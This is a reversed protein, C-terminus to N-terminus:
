DPRILLPSTKTLISQCIAKVFSEGSDCKYNTLLILPCVSKAALARLENTSYHCRYDDLIEGLRDGRGCATAQQILQEESEPVVLFIATAVESLLDVKAVPWDLMYKDQTVGSHAIDSQLTGYSNGFFINSCWFAGNSNMLAYEEPSVQFKETEGERVPRTTAVRVFKWGHLEALSRM